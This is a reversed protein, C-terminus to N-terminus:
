ICCKRFTSYRWLSQSIERWVCCLILDPKLIQAQLEIFFPSYMCNCDVLHIIINANRWLLDSGGCTILMSCSCAHLVTYSDIDSM